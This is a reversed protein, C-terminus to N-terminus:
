SVNMSHSAIKELRDMICEFYLTLDDNFDKPLQKRKERLWLEDEHDADYDPYELLEKSKCSM